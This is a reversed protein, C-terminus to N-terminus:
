RYALEEAGLEATRLGRRVRGADEENPEPERIDGERDEVRGAVRQELARAAAAAAAAAAEVRGCSATRAV